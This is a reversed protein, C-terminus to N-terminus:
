EYRTDFDNTQLRGAVTRLREAASPRDFIRQFWPFVSSSLIAQGDSRRFWLFPKLSLYDIVLVWSTRLWFDRLPNRWLSLRAIWHDKSKRWCRSRWTSAATLVRSNTWQIAGSSDFLFAGKDYHSFQCLGYIAQSAKQVKVKHIYCKCVDIYKWRLTGRWCTEVSMWVESTDWRLTPRESPGMRISKGRWRIKVQLLGGLLVFNDEPLMAFGPLVFNDCTKKGKWYRCTSTDEM